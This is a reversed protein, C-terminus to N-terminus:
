AHACREDAGPLAKTTHGFAVCHLLEAKGQRISYSILQNHDPPQAMWLQHPWLPVVETQALAAGPLGLWAPMLGVLSPPEVWSPRAAKIM